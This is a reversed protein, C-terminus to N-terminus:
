TGASLGGHVVSFIALYHCAAAAVVMVHWVEHYGFVRPAPDPWRTGLVLAGVSYLAGGALLLVLASVSLHRSLAPLAISILWGMGGYCAAGVFRREAIGAAALGLGVAAWLWAALLYRGGGDGRLTLLCIPTYSGAIMVFIVGHDARKMRRRGEVSWRRRHYAASVGFLACLGVAYVGAALRARTSGAHLVLLAGAPIALFFCLSHLWGRLL